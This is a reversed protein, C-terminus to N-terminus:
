LAASGKRRRRWAAAGLMGLGTLFLPVAAPLPTALDATGSLEARFGSITGGDRIEFELTNLGSIFGSTISFAHLSQFHSVLLGLLPAVGTNVGNLKISLGENDTAWSGNIVATNPDLGTLDFTTKFTRVVNTPQGNSQQWIWASTTSNPLWNPHPSVLIANANAAENITFHTDTAGPALGVGGNNVGTSFVSIPAAEAGGATLVVVALWTLFAGRVYRRM